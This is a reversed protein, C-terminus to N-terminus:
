IYPAYVGAQDAIPLPNSNNNPPTEEQPKSTITVKLKSKNPLSQFSPPIMYEKFDEDFYEIQITAAQNIDLFQKVSYHFDEVTSRNKAEFKHKNGNFELLFILPATPVIGNWGAGNELVGDHGNNSADKATLGDGEDLLWHASLNTRNPHGDLSKSHKWKDVVDAPLVTNWIRIDRLGAGFVRDHLGGLFERGIYMPTEGELVSDQSGWDKKDTQVGDIFMLSTCGDYSTAIHTWTNANLIKQSQLTRPGSRAGMVGLTPNGNWIAIAYGTGVRGSEDGRPKSLLVCYGKKGDWKVWAEVTFKQLKLSTADKIHVFSGNQDQIGNLSLYNEPKSSGM